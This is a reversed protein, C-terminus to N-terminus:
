LTKKGYKVNIYLLSMRKGADKYGFEQSINSTYGFYNMSKCCSVLLVDM